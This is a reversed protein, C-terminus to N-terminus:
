VLIVVVYDVTQSVDVAESTTAWIYHRAMVETRWGGLPLIEDVPLDALSKSLSGGVRFSHMTFHAPLSADRLHAELAATMQPAM